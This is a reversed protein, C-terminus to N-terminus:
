ELKGPGNLVKPFIAKHLTIPPAVHKGALSSGKEHTRLIQTFGSALEALRLWAPPRAIFLHAKTLVIVILV